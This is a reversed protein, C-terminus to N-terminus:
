KVSKIADVKGSAYIAYILVAWFIIGPIMLPTIARAKIVIIVQVFVGVRVATSRDRRMAGAALVCMIALGACTLITVRKDYGSNIAVPIVLGIVIAEMVFMSGGLFKM